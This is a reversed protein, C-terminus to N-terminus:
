AEDRAEERNAILISSTSEIPIVPKRTTKNHMKRLIRDQFYPSIDTAIVFGDKDVLALQYYRSSIDICHIKIVYGIIRLPFEGDGYRILPATSLIDYWGSRGKGQIALIIYSSICIVIGLVSINPVEGRALTVCMGFTFMISVVKIIWLLVETNVIDDILSSSRSRVDSVYADLNVKM